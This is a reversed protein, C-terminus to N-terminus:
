KAGWISLAVSLVDGCKGISDIYDLTNKAGSNKAQQNFNGLHRYYCADYLERWIEFQPLGTKAAQKNVLQRIADRDSIDPAPLLAQREEVRSEIKAMRVDLQHITAAVTQSVIASIIELDRATLTPGSASQDFGRANTRPQETMQGLNGVMNSKPIWEMVMESEARSFITKKGNVIKGPMKQKVIRRVTKEDCGATIAIEKITM